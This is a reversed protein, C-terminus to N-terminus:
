LSEPRFWHFTLYYVYRLCVGQGWPVLHHRAPAQRQPHRVQAGGGGGGQCQARGRHRTGGARGKDPASFCTFM